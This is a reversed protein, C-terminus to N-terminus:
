QEREDQERVAPPGAVVAPDGAAPVPAVEQDVDRDALADDVAVERGLHRVDGALRQGVVPEGVEVPRDGRGHGSEVIM